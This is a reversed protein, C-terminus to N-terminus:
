PTSGAAKLSVHKCTTMSLSDWPDHSTRGSSRSSLMKMTKSVSELAIRPALLQFVAVISGEPLLALLSPHKCFLSAQHSCERPGLRVHTTHCFRQPRYIARLAIQPALSGIRQCGSGSFPSNNRLRRPANDASHPAQSPSRGPSRM